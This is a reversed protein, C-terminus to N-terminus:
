LLNGVKSGVAADVVIGRIISGTSNTLASLNMHQVMMASLEAVVVLGSMLSGTFLAIKKM